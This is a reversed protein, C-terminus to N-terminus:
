NEQLQQLPSEKLTRRTSFYSSVDGIILAIVNILFISFGSKLNYPVKIGLMGTNLMEM